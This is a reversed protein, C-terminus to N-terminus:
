LAIGVKVGLWKMGHWIIAFLAGIKVIYGSLTAMPKFVDYTKEAYSAMKIVYPAAAALLENTKLTQENALEAQELIKQLVAVDKETKDIRGRNYTIRGEHDDLRRAHETQGMEIKKFRFDTM